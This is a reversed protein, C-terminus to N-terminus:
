LKARPEWSPKLERAMVVIERAVRVPLDADSAKPPVKGKDMRELTVEMWSRRAPVAHEALIELAEDIVDQKAEGWSDWAATIRHYSRALVAYRLTGRTAKALNSYGWAEFSLEVAHTLAHSFRISRQKTPAM